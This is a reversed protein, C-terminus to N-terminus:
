DGLYRVNDALAAILYYVKRCIMQVVSLRALLVALTVAFAVSGVITWVNVEGFLLYSIALLAVSCLCSSFCFALWIWRAQEIETKPM